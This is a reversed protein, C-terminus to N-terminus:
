NSLVRHALRDRVPSADKNPFLVGVVSACCLADPHQICALSYIRVRGDRSRYALPLVQEIQRMRHDVSVPRDAWSFAFDDEAFIWYDAGIAYAVDTAHAMDDLVRQPEYLEETTFSFPPLTVHGTYLYTSGDEWAIVRADSTSNRILWSYAEQKSSLLTGRYQSEFAIGKRMGNKYGWVIIFASALVIVALAAAGVRTKLAHGSGINARPYALLHKGELWLSAAFLPLFPLLFRVGDAFNWFLILPAYFLLVLYVSRWPQVRYQRISGAIVAATVLVALIVGGTVRHAFLPDIFYEGPGRLVAGANNKLMALFVKVNPVALKWAGIYSTYYTWM